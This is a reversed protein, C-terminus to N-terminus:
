FRGPSAPVRTLLGDLKALLEQDRPTLTHLQLGSARAQQLTKRAEPVREASQYALALHFQYRPDAQPQGALEQFLEVAETARGQALYVTGLTDLLWSERGAINIARCIYDIAQDHEGIQALHYALNNMASINSPSTQLVRRFLAAAEDSKGRMQRYSGVALLLDPDQSHRELAQTLVPGAIEINEVSPKGIALVTGLATATNPTSDSRALEVCIGVAEAMAEESALGALFLALSLGARSDIGAARRLLKEASDKQGLSRYVQAASVLLRAQGATDQAQDLNTKLFSEVLPQIEGQRGLKKLWRTRLGLPRLAAPQSRELLRITADARDEFQQNSAHLHRILFDAYAALHNPRPPRRNALVGLQEAALPIKGDAEYIRALSLRDRLSARAANAILEELLAAAERRNAQGGRQWLLRAHLRRDAAESTGIGTNDSLLRCAEEFSAETGRGALLSALARRTPRDEPGLKLAQRLVQEARDVDTEAIFSGAQRLVTVDDAHTQLLGAFHSEAAGRDGVMQWGRALLLSRPPEPIHGNNELETLSTRAKDLKETQAYFALLEYWTQTNKPALSKARLFATEAEELSKSLWLTYGLWIQAVPDKPRARAADKADQVARPIDGLAISRAIALAAGKPSSALIEPLRNFVPRISADRDAPYVLQVIRAADWQHSVRTQDLRIAREYARVAERTKGQREAILGKLRFTTPWTPRVGEIEAQLEEAERLRPDETNKAQLALRQARYLRWQTGSPGELERLRREWRALDHPRNAQSDLSCLLRIARVNSPESQVLEELHRRAADHKGQRLGLEALFLRAPARQGAPLTTLATNVRQEASGFKGRRALVEARMLLSEVSNKTLQAYRQIADDARQPEGLQQYMLVLMRWDAPSDPEATEAEQLLKVAESILGRAAACEAGLLRVGFCDGALEKVESLADQVPQWDRSEQPLTLQKRLLARAFNLRATEDVGTLTRCRRYHDIALDLHGARERARGAALLFKVSQPVLSVTKEFAEAARDWERLAALATGLLLYARRKIDDPYATQGPTEAAARERLLVEQLLGPVNVYEGKAISQEAQLLGEIARMRSRMPGISHVIQEDKVKSLVVIAEEAEDLRKSHILLRVLFAHLEFDNQEVKGLGQRLVGVAQELEPGDPNREFQTALCRALGLYGRRDAPFEDILKQYGDAAEGLRDAQLARDAVALRIAAKNRPKLDGAQDLNRAALDLDEDAGPLRYLKRYRYRVLLATAPVQAAAVMDDIVQDALLNREEQRVTSKGHRQEAGGPAERYLPQGHDRYVAVLRGALEIHEQSGRNHQLAERLVAALETPAFDRTQRRALEHMAVAKVGLSDPDSEGEATGLVQNAQELAADFRGAQLLLRAQRKRWDSRDPAAALVQFYLEIARQKESPTEASRDLVDALQARAGADEPVLKLYRHLSAAASELDDEAIHANARQLLADANRRLQYARWFCACVMGAVVLTVLCILFRVNLKWTTRPMRPM